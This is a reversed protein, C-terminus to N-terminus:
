EDYNQCSELPSTKGQVSNGTIGLQCKVAHNGCGMLIASYSAICRHTHVDRSYFALALPIDIDIDVDIM